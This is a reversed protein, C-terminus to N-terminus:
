LERMLGDFQSKYEEDTIVGDKHLRKLNEIKRRVERYKADGGPADGGAANDDAAAQAAPSVKKAPPPSDVAVTPQRAERTPPTDPTNPPELAALM